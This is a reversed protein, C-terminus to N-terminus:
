RRRSCAILGLALFAIWPGSSGSTQAACFRGGGGSGGGLFEPPLAFLAYLGPAIGEAEVWGDAHSVRSSIPRYWVASPEDYVHMELASGDGSFPIRVRFPADVSAGPAVRFTSGSPQLGLASGNGLPRAASELRLLGAGSFAKAPVIVWVGAANRLVKRRGPDVFADVRGGSESLTPALADVFVTNSDDGSSVLDDVLIRVDVFASPLASVDWPASFLTGDSLIAGGIDIWPGPLADPRYQFQVKKIIGSPIAEATLTVSTGSVGDGARPSLLWGRTGFATATMPTTGSGTLGSPDTVRAKVTFVGARQIEPSIAAVPPTFVFDFRGDGDVDYEISAMAGFFAAISSLYPINGNTATVAVGPGAPGTVTVSSSLVEYSRNFADTVILRATFTGAARYTFSAPSGTLSARDPVGDGDFDWVYSAAPAPGTVSPTYTVVLPAPGSSVDPLVSIAPLAAPLVTIVVTGTDTAAAGDVVRLAATYVGPKSYTTTVTPGRLSSWDFRGAGEFDWQYELYENEFDTASGSLTVRLPAVGGTVSATVSTIVPPVNVVIRVRVDYYGNEVVTGANVVRLFFTGGAGISYQILSSPDGPAQNDNFALITTGDPAYLEIRTDAGDGLNLTEAVLIGPTLTLAYWDEDGAAFLTRFALGPGLPLPTASGFTNNSESSDPYYRIGRENMIGLTAETGTVLLMFAPSTELLLGERFDELTIATRAPIRNNVANWVELENGAAVVDWAENAPDTVDWLVAAVAVENTAQVMLLPFNPTEISFVSNGAGFNDVQTQPSPYESGVARRVAASWYHAWGESWSTRPDLQDLVTHPGGLTDDTSFNSAVWHGIEHLIIDDDYEDPDSSTGLFFIANLARVFFTGTSTGSQWYIKLLPPTLPLDVDLTAQYQFSKVACDFLNFAPGAGSSSFTVTTFDTVTATDISPTLATYVANASSNNMVVANIKSGPGAGRAYVRAQVIEGQSIPGISFAGTTIDTVGNGLPTGDSQRIIEVEAGRILRDTTGGTFGGNTYNLDQYQVTGTVTVTQAAAASSLLLLWAATKV